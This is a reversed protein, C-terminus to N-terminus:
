SSDSVGWYLVNELAVLHKKIEDMPLGCVARTEDDRVNIFAHNLLWDALGPIIERKAREYDELKFTSLNEPQPWEM